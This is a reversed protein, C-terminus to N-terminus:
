FSCTPMQGHEFCYKAPLTYTTGTTPDVWPWQHSGFFAPASSLYFSNPITVPSGAGNTTGGLGYWHQANTVWDWNGQRLQTNISTDIFTWCSCPPTNVSAQYSGFEWMVVADTNAATNSQATTTVQETFNQQKGNYCSESNYPNTLLVQGNMGLVNGVFSQYYSYAQVDVATRSTYDGYVYDCSGSKFDYSNLPPHSARLASLWNRFITIYISNGWYTDGKYNDSYNGELLELHPTTYHGANVGAEPSDPYTSGFSDDMYNYAVVNGGGSGRMVNVKNGQWMINNEFLNDAAGVNIGSLYGGGGPNPSPTEHMFSDRLTSRFTSYFGISTGVHWMAEVNKVWCYGCDVLPLNGNFDGGMGGFLFLNEIGVSRLFGVYPTLQADCGSCTGSTHYPYHLPTTFTATLGNVSAVEMIQALSRDQRSFWRRSGDGPGGFSPGWVVNPDNDTNEDILVFSGAAVGSPMSDVSVSYAGQVADATLNASTGFSSNGTVYLIGYNANTARDSKVL